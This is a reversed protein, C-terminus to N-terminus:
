AEDDDIRHRRLSSACSGRNNGVVGAHEGSGAADHQRRQEVAGDDGVVVLREIFQSTGVRCPSTAGGMGIRDVALLVDSNRRAEFLTARALSAREGSIRFWLLATISKTNATFQRTSACNV